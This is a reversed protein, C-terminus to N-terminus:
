STKATEVEVVDVANDLHNDSASKITGFVKSEYPHLVHAKERDFIVAMEELTHGRTEPYYFYCIICVGVLIVVFVLYYKWGIAELAIPNVFINTTLAVTTSFLTVTVGRARLQYPWIECPYSVLLPTFAIDYFGFYIFLFPIVAIGVSPVGNEAFSGSLGTIIIYSGLMGAASTLFLKRRGFRDVSFAASVSLILNWIQLCGSILTQDTVTTIGVTELVLALYYSVVGVGNWQAFVGLTVSILTRHLNGRGRLMDMYSTNEQADRELRLTTVIEDLEFEILDNIVGGNHHKVLVAKAEEIRDISVLWRPSEPSLLFGPLAVVPIAAQLLSPIRWAWSNDYNRTGFTAWAAVLSGVYWGCNYLATATGRHTPFAIETILLPASTTWLASTMGLFARSIIFATPNQAATQLTTALVLFFYGLYISAKRGWRQLIYASVSYVFLGGISQIANIFGLWAGKPNDMFERWQPLAQLGNMLSGDYGNASSFMVLSVVMLNLRLLHPKKYWPVSDHGVIKAIAAGVAQEERNVDDRQVM